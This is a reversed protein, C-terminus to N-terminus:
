SLPLIDAKHDPWGLKIGRAALFCCILPAIFCVVGIKQSDKTKMDVLQNIVGVVLDFVFSVKCKVRQALPIHLRLLNARHHMRKSLYFRSTM